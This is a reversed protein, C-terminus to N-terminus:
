DDSSVSDALVEIEVDISGALVESNNEFLKIKHTYIQEALSSLSVGTEISLQIEIKEGNNVEINLVFPSDCTAETRVTFTRDTDIIFKHTSNIGQGKIVKLNDEEIYYGQCLLSLNKADLPTGQEYVEGESRSLSVKMTSIEGVFDGTMSLVNLTFVNPNEVNRNKFKM